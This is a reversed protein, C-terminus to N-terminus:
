NNENKVWGIKNDVKVQMYNRSINLIKATTDKKVVYIVTSNQTPLITLKDGKYLYIIGKPLLQYALYFSIILPFILIWLYQFVIFMLLFFALLLLLLINLSTFFNNYKPNIDTQTSITEEELKIPISIKKFSQTDLNFYYFDFTKVDSPLTILYSALNNSLITLNEDNSLHFAKINCDKCKITFSLIIHNDKTKVAVPSTINIEQALVHSFHPIPELKKIKFLSNVNITKNLEKSTIFIFKNEKDVQFRAQVFYIFPNIKNIELVINKTASINLDNFPSIVKLKLNVIQNEYYFPKLNTFKIILDDAFIFLPILFLLIRM